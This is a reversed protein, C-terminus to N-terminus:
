NEPKILTFNEVSPLAKSHALQIKSLASQEVLVYNKNLLLEQLNDATAPVPLSFV